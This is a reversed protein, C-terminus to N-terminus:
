PGDLLRDPSLLPADLEYWGLAPGIFRFIIWGGIIAFIAGYALKNLWFLIGKEPAIYLSWAKEALSMDDWKKAKKAPAVASKTAQNGGSGAQQKRARRGLGLRAEVAEVDAEVDAVSREGTENDNDAARVVFMRRQGREKPLRSMSASLIKSRKNGNFVNVSSVASCVHHSSGGRQRSVAVRSNAGARSWSLLDVASSVAM